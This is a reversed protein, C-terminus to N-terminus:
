GAIDSGGPLFVLVMGGSDQAPSIIIFGLLLAANNNYNLAGLTLVLLSLGVFLGFRTPLVYIRRNAVQYPQADRPGARFWKLRM